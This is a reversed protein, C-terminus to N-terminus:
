DSESGSEDSSSSDSDDSSSDSSSSYNLVDKCDDFFSKPKAVVHKSSQKRVKRCSQQKKANMRSRIEKMEEDVENVSMFERGLSSSRVTKFNPLTHELFAEINRMTRNDVQDMDLEVDEEPSRGQGHNSKEIISLLAPLKTSPVRTVGDGCRKKEEFSMEVDYLLAARTLYGAGKAVPTRAIVPARCRQLYEIREKLEERSMTDPDTQMAVERVAAIAKRRSAKSLSPTDVCPESSSVLDIQEVTCREEGSAKVNRAKAGVSRKKSLKSAVIEDASPPLPLGETFQKNFQSQLMNATNYLMDGARNYVKANQFVVRVDDAFMDANFQYPLFDDKVPSIYVSTELRKKVSRLDMPMAILEFYRPIAAEHWLERVPAAFPAATPDRIISLVLKKCFQLRKCKSMCAPLPTSAQQVPEDLAARPRRIRSSQRTPAPSSPKPPLGVRKCSPSTIPKPPVVNDVDVVKPILAPSKSPLRAVSARRRMSTEMRKRPTRIRSSSRRLTPSPSPTEAVFVVDDDASPSPEAKLATKRDKIAQLKQLLLRRREDDANSNLKAVFSTTRESSPSQAEAFTVPPHTSSSAVRARKPNPNTSDRDSSRSSSASINPLSLSPPRPKLLNPRAASTSRTTRMASDDSAASCPSAPLDEWGNDM